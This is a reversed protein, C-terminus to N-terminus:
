EDSAFVVRGLRKEAEPARDREDEVAEAEEELDAFRYRIEGNPGPDVDGGLEVVRATIEKSSPEAGTAVRWVERLREDRVPEKKPARALVERLVALRANEERARKEAPVRLAARALPLVFLALSFVFPVLGLAIPVGADPLVAPPEKSFLLLINSLTLGRAMVWGSALLNFGNLLAVLVNALADNGTLPPLRKPVEWAPAPRTAREEGATRRLAEFRYVIGGSEGVDVEGEYDLMLRAMMPDAEDRPLGTVRMVDALGIRGKQARIEALVRVEQARPDPPAVAPGFVFRNVKEYFPAKPAAPADRRWSPAPAAGWGDGYAGGVYFPSFPHLTWFLADGIMRLLGGLLGFGSRGEDRDGDGQRALTLGVLLAVFLAAYGVMVALLWIRVVFRGAAVLGRSARAAFRALAERTEWPKTFGHPFVHVLDGDETVRLHGRYESTLWQLGAEADRIPLGSAVAADAVTIPRTPLELKRVLVAAASEPRM